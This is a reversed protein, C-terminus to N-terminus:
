YITRLHVCRYTHLLKVGLVWVILPPENDMLNEENLLGGGFQYLMRRLCELEEDKLKRKKCMKYIVVTSRPLFSSSHVTGATSQRGTTCSPKFATWKQYLMNRSSGRSNCCRGKGGSNESVTLVTIMACGQWVLSRTHRSWITGLNRITRRGHLSGRHRVEKQTKQCSAPVWGCFPKQVTLTGRKQQWWSPLSTRTSMTWMILHQILLHLFFCVNFNFAQGGFTQYKCVFRKLVWDSGM